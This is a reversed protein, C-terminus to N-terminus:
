TTSAVAEWRYRQRVDDSMGVRRVIVEIRWEGAITPLWQASRIGAENVMTTVQIAGLAAVPPTFTLSVRQVAAATPGVTLVTWSVGGDALLSPIVSVDLGEVRGDVLTPDAGGLLPVAGGVLVGYFGPAAHGDEASVAVWAVTYAGAPCEPVTAVLRTRDTPDIGGSVGVVDTGSADLLRIGSGRDLPGSFTVALDSSCM